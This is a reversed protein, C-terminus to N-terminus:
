TSHKMHFLKNIASVLSTLDSPTIGPIKSAHAIDKPQAKEFKDVAERRLGIEKYNMDVPIKLTHLKNIKEADRLQRNIYGEYKFETLLTSSPRAPLCAIEAYMRSLKEWRAEPRNCYDKLLTGQAVGLEDAERSKISRSFIFERVQNLSKYWQLMIYYRDGSIAELIDHPLTEFVSLWANDERLLLRFESRGTLLRYPEDVGSVVLDDIMVGIYSKDRTFIISERKCIWNAANIGALLGLGAAEEYGSTGMIQGAFFLGSISKSMLSHSIQTPEVVDYEVAYGPVTIEANELGPITHLMKLQIEEPLSNSIGNPYMEVSERGEPEIFVIHKNHGPFKVIKTEISPCYRPGIGTIMGGYLASNKLNEQVVRHTKENTWTIFCCEQQSVPLVVENNLSFPFYDEEGLQIKTASFDISSRLIRPPTGTKFRLLSLGANELSQSLKCDASEGIRGKDYINHGIYIKGGLFTGTALIVASCQFEDGNELIVGAIYNSEIIIEVINGQIITIRKHAILLRNIEFEYESRENQSRTAQVAPGKKRNLVRFQIGTSDAAQSMLGGMADVERVVRSKAIGGIAPNCSMRGTAHVDLTVLLVDMGLKSASVAAEIGGHGGGVVIIDFKTNKNIM